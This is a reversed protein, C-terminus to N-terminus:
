NCCNSTGDQGCNNQDNPCSCDSGPDPSCSLTPSDMAPMSSSCDSTNNQSNANMMQQMLLWQATRRQAVDEDDSNSFNSGSNLGVGVGKAIRWIAIAAILIVIIWDM